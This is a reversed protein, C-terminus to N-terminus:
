AHLATGAPGRAVLMFYFAGGIVDFRTNKFRFLHLNQRGYALSRAPPPYAAACCYEGGGGAVAGAGAVLKGVAADGARRPARTLAPNGAAQAPASATAADGNSRRSGLAPRTCAFTAGPRQWAAATSWV